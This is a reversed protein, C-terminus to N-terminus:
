GYLKVEGSARDRLWPSPKFREGYKQAMGDCEAVFEAVGVTDILSMTGGTYTPFSWGLVSGIDGDEARTLVGEELCRVTELAQIYLLRKKLEAFEPQKDAVPFHDALGPWLRKSGDEAYEYFGANGKRGPRGLDNMMKTMVDYSVPKRYADGEQAIAQDAIMLPLEISVEDTVMLPGVPMGAMKGANEIMAPKVGERLMAMGEHIFTQFVRSTYFGRSDNVVIPTKRIQKVFDLARALTQDSTKKGMIVEVLGMRDVPSFFHLGIFDAPRPFNEALASIPLTSTNSAFPATDPLVAAAKKTVEAKVATDEFVAEIILDAGELLAYDTTATIRALVADAAEQTRKGKEVMRGLVKQSYAKGKDANDQTADILIVEIGATAAVNAIGAGMMGAGLVGLKRVTYTPVGAPRMTLADNKGKNLFTTRIINRSVPDTILRAFYKNELAQARDFPQQMGEFVVTEIAIPAPYNHWTKASLSAATMTHITATKMDLVGLAAPPQYGKRDWPKTAEPGTALWAIAADIQTGAPVVEDVLGLKLAEQPGVSRGSLLLDLARETGLMRPLRQTGGSGPLLGLNVEPLSVVAKPDDVLIRYHCALALEFGGGLALGNMAAVFPKGCTEMRRHMDSPAKCFAVVDAKSMGRDYATGVFKLDAGAMFAPKASTVIAGTVADDSAVKDVAETFEAIFEPSVLNMSEDANDLTLTAIGNEVAYRIHKM